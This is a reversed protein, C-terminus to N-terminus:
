PPRQLTQARRVRMPPRCRPNRPSISSRCSWASIRTPSSIARDDVVYAHGTKGVEIQSVVDRIFKLNVEVVTVGAQAGSGAVAITMHPESEQRFYVPGFYVKGARAQLFKPDRSFDAQSGVVDRGLRSVRLQEKGSADLQSIETIATVQRLFWFYDFRRQNLM